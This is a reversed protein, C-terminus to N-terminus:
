DAQSPTSANCTETFPEDAAPKFPKWEGDWLAPGVPFSARPRAWVSGGGVVPLWYYFDIKV